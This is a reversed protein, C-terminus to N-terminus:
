IFEITPKGEHTWDWVFWAFALMSTGPEGTFDFRHMRPLRKSFVLVKSLPTSQFLKQRKVGELWALRNLMVVKGKRAKTAELAKVTFDYSLNFPPNTIIADVDQLPEKLFDKHPTGYGWDHLDTSIVAYGKAELIKSIAGNGCCPEWITPGFSEVELLKEVAIPPTPYFDGMPRQGDTYGAAKQATKADKLAM